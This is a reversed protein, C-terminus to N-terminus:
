ETTSQSSNLKLYANFYRNGFERLSLSNFHIGDSKLALGKASVVSCNPVKKAIDRFKANMQKPYDGFKWRKSINESLEGIIFPVNEANLQKRIEYIIRIIREEYLAFNAQNCDSEGQHWLIGGLKSTRMALKTMMVAHDFLIEGPLWQSIATGGDACPILGVKKNFHKSYSDAFSAGLGVGSIVDGEFVARDPNIPESMAQWRGMRLMYCDNNYINAVEGFEGRGAMNSQGIMLFSTIDKESKNIGDKIM